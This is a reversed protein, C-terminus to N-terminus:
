GNQDQPKGSTKLRDAFAKLQSNKLARIERFLETVDIEQSHFKKLLDSARNTQM